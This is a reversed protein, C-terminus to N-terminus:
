HTTFERIYGDAVFSHFILKECFIALKMIQLDDIWHHKTHSIFTMLSLFQERDFDSEKKCDEFVHIQELSSLCFNCALLFDLIGIGDIYNTFDRVEVVGIQLFASSFLSDVGSDISRKLHNSIIKKNKTFQEDMYNRLQEKKNERIDM